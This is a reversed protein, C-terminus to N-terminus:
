RHANIHKTKEWTNNGVFQRFLARCSSFGLVLQFPIFYLCLKLPMLISYKKQYDKTFEYLGVNILVLNIVFIYLPMNAIIAALAPIKITFTVYLSFPIYIFLLGQMIPWVLVYLCLLKQLISPLKLWDGKLLIQIFGQNWRTRQKIFSWLTDPTEEMTVHNEDYVVATKAGAISLRIGIDADETLCDQDWGGVSVLMKRRFFVSNGGLPIIGAYAFYHLSSKFWFFYELVNFASYWNSHFNMLQVGSQVVDVKKRIITTNVIKYIDKHPEDEADFITVFDKRSKKLAINLGHPKNIPYGSFIILKINEKNIKEITEKAKQITELDDDRCIVFVQKLEEPYDINSVAEITQAIVEKEHRAPILATFSHKPEELIEPTKNDNIRQPDEWAYLMLFLSFGGQIVLFVSLIVLVATFISLTTLFVILYYIVVVSLLLVVSQIAVVKLSQTDSTKKWVLSHSLWYNLAISFIIGILSAIIYYFGIDLFYRYVFFTLFTTTFSLILFYICRVLYGGKSINRRDPFTILGNLIYNSIISVFVAIFWAIKQDFNFLEVATVLVLLNVIVGSFGVFCFRAFRSADPFDIVLSKLHDIFKMGQKIGAKSTDNERKSFIFPVNSVKKINARLLLELLIKFGKPSLEVDKIVSKKFIFFGSGPDTTKKSPSLLMWCVYKALLSIFKRYVGGLGVASGGRMYRSAVVLDADDEIIKNLLNPITSTPHQLDSDMCLIYKGNAENFGKVFATALGTRDAPIRRILTIREDISRAGEIVSTTEDTSDDIFIVEYEVFDPVADVIGKLLPTINDKENFTPLLITLEIKKSIEQLNRM